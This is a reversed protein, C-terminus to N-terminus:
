HGTAFRRGISWAKIGYDAEASLYAPVTEATAPLAPAGRSACWALFAAFDATYARRTNLAKEAKAFDNARKLVVELEGPLSM